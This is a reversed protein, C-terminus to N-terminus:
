IAEEQETELKKPAPMYKDLPEAKMTNYEKKIKNIFRKTEKFPPVGKYKQVNGPGANYAALALDTSGFKKYMMQYYMVGGKINDSQSYPNVGLKRATTPMLQFVGVAGSSNQKRHEFNSELKAISLVIYPDVGMKLATQVIDSKVKQQSAQAPAAIFGFCALFLCVLLSRILKKIM